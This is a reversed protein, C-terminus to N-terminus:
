DWEGIEQLKMEAYQLQVLLEKETHPHLIMKDKSKEYWRVPTAKGPYAWAAGIWDAVMERVYREPMPVPSLYGKDGLSVWAQWHHPNRQHNIWALQFESSQLAPNYAGTKDRIGQKLSGDPNYLQRVYPGWERRSFKSLDHILGTWVSLGMMRCALYVYYKHRIVRKFYEWHAKM